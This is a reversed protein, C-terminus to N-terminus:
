GVVQNSRPANQEYLTAQKKLTTVQLYQWKRPLQHLQFQFVDNAPNYYQVENILKGIQSKVSFSIDDVKLKLHDLPTENPLFVAYKVNKLDNKEL